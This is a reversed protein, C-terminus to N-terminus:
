MKHITIKNTNILQAEINSYEDQYSAAPENLDVKFLYSSEDDTSKEQIQIILKSLNLISRTNSIKEPYLSLYTIGINTQM